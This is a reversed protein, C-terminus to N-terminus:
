CSTLFDFKLDFQHHLRFKMLKIEESLQTAQENLIANAVALDDAESKLQDLEQKKRERYRLAADRNMAKRRENLSMSAQDEPVRVKKPRGRKPKDTEYPAFRNLQCLRPTASRSVVPKVDEVEEKIKVNDFVHTNPEEKPIASCQPQYHDTEEKAIAPLGPNTCNNAQEEDELYKVWLDWDVNNASDDLDSPHIDYDIPGYTELWEMHSQDITPPGNSPPTSSTSPIEEAPCVDDFIMYQTYDLSDNTAFPDMMENAQRCYLSHDALALAEKRPGLELWDLSSEYPEPALLPDSRLLWPYSENSYGCADRYSSWETEQGGTGYHWAGGPTSESNWIFDMLPSM